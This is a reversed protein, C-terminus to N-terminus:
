VGGPIRGACDGHAAIPVIKGNTVDAVRPPFQAGGSALVHTDDIWGCAHFGAIPQYSTDQIVTNGSSWWATLLGNPSLYAPTAGQIPFGRVTAGTWNLVSAQTNNPDACVAGGPSPQGVIVCSPGGLTHLRDATAPDVVHLEPLCCLLQGAPICSPVKAVVLNGVGHWGIPWITDQGTESFIEVHHGGGKLDEVYLRTSAGVAYFDDVVVAIRQDDPSVSFLSREFKHGGTTELDDTPVTTAVGTDGNPALFRVQTDGDLFYARTNSTSIPVPLDAGPLAPPEPITSQCGIRWAPNDAKASAKVMGDTGVISISYVSDGMNTALVGFPGSPLTWPSSTAAPSMTAGPGTCAGVATAAVVFM